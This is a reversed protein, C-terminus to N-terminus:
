SKYKRVTNEELKQSMQVLPRLLEQEVINCWGTSSLLFRFLGIAESAIPLAAQSYLVAPDLSEREKDKKRIGDWILIGRDSITFPSSFSSSSFLFYYNLPVSFLSCIFSSSSSSLVPSFSLSFFSFFFSFLLSFFSYDSPMIRKSHPLSAISFNIFPHFIFFIIYHINFCFRLLILTVVRRSFCFVKIM